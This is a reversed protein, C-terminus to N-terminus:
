LRGELSGDAAVRASYVQKRDVSAARITQGPVGSELCIVTLSIHVHLGELHLMATSGNRVVPMAPRSAVAAAAVRVTPLVPDADVSARLTVMFPLCQRTSACELRAYVRHDTSRDISKVTLAPNAVSAVVNTMLSVQQATIPMGLHSVAAAVEETTIAYRAAGVAPIAAAALFAFCIAWMRRTMM